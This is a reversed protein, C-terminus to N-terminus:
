IAPPPQYTARLASGSSLEIFWISGKKWEVLGRNSRLDTGRRGLARLLEPIVDGHSSMVVNLGASEEIRPLLAGVPAGEALAPDDIIDIGTLESLPEVTQRCRLYPSSLILDIRSSGLLRAIAEAQRWGKPTLPRLRDDGEWDARSSATGHRILYIMGDSTLSGLDTATALRRDRDYSLLATADPIPVWRCEDVEDNATFGQDAVARMAFYTVEKRRGDPLQYAVTGLPAVVRALQGTEEIVERVATTEPAEGPENKGKPLSWDDYRPRHVVLVEFGAKGPRFVLGGSARVPESTM